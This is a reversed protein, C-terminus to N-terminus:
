DPLDLLQDLLEKVDAWSIRDGVKSHAVADGRLAQVGSRLTPTPAEDAAVVSSMEHSEEPEALPAPQRKRAPM